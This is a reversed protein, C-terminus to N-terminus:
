AAESQEETRDAPIEELKRKANDLRSKKADQERLWLAAPDDGDVVPIENGEHVTFGGKEVISRDTSTSNDLKKGTAADTTYGAKTENMDFLNYDHFTPDYDGDVGGLAKQHKQQEKPLEDRQYSTGYGPEM